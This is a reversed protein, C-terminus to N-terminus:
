AKSVPEPSLMAEPAPPLALAPPILPLAALLPAQTYFTIDAENRVVPDRMEAMFALGAGLLLGALGGMVDIRVLDPSTPKLPLNAPDIIRFEEGEAQQEMAAATAAAAKKDLLSNYNTKAQATANTINALKQEVEPLREIRAQLANIKGQITKQDAQRQAIEQDLLAVQSRQQPPLGALDDPVTTKPKAGGKGTGATQETAAKKAAAAADAKEQNVQQTLAKVQAQLRIVDPHQPTYMQQAVALDAKAKNLAQEDPTLPPPAGPAAAPNGLTAVAQGLSTLYTRQQQARALGEANAQLESNLQSMVQLNADQQEPLSGMYQSRLERLQTELGDLTQKALSLQGDIFQVTGQSQDARAKLNEQIFLSSLDRTVGQALLPTPAEFSIRFATVMSNPRDPEAVSPTVTIHTLMETVKQDPTLNKDKYLAYKNILESLQTRSLIQEQISTLRLAVNSSVTPKVFDAPVKQPEVLILSESTYLRPLLRGVVVTVAAIGLLPVVLWVWRRVGIQLYELPNTIPRRPM